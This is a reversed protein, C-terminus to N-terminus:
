AGRSIVVRAMSRLQEVGLVWALVVYSVTGLPVGLLAQLLPSQPGYVRFAWLVLAMGCSAAGVKILTSVLVGGGFSGLRRGVLVLLIVTEVLAAVATALALGGLPGLGMGEFVYPFTLGLIANLVVAVVAAVAPTWTDHLAYFARGLIELASHGVLGVAFFGLVWAVSSTSAAGFAGRQFMLAVIPEGLLILGISAPVTLVALTRLSNVLTLRLEPTQGLAAQQSLTPFVATGV